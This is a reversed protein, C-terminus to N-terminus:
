KWKCVCFFSFCGEPRGVVGSFFFLKKKKLDGFSFFIYRWRLERIVVGRKQISRVSFFERAATTLTSRYFTGGAEQSYVLLAVGRKKYTHQSQGWYKWGKDSLRLFVKGEEKQWITKLRETEKVLFLFIRWKKKGNPMYINERHGDYLALFFAEKTRIRKGAKKYKQGWSFFSDVCVGNMWNKVGMHIGGDLVCQLSEFGM